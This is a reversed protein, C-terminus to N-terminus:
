NCDSNSVAMIKHLIHGDVKRTGDTLVYKKNEM